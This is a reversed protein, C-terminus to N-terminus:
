VVVFRMGVVVEEEEFKGGRAKGIQRQLLTEQGKAGNDELVLPAYGVVSGRLSDPIAFAKLAETATMETPNWRSRSRSAGLGSKIPSPSASAGQPHLIPDIPIPSGVRPYYISASHLPTSMPTKRASKPPSKVPVSCPSNALASARTKKQPTTHPVLAQVPSGDQGHAANFDRVLDMRDDTVVAGTGVIGYMGTSRGEIGHAAPAPAPTHGRWLMRPDVALTGEETALAADALMTLASEFGFGNEVLPDLRAKKSPSPMMEMERRRTVERKIARLTDEDLEHRLLGIAKARNSPNMQKIDNLRQRLTRRQGTKGRTNEYSEVLKDLDLGDIELEPVANLLRQKKSPTEPAVSATMSRRQRMLPVEPSSQAIGFYPPALSVGRAPSPERVASGFLLEADAFPDDPAGASTKYNGDDMRVPKTSYATEPGYKRGNGATIVLDFIALGPQGRLRSPIHARSLARLLEASPPSDGWKNRGRANAEVELARCTMQWREEASVEGGESASANYMWAREGQRSVRTGHFRVRDNKLEVASGRTNLLTLGVLEGNLFVEMKLDKARKTSNAKPLFSKHCTQVTLCLAQPGDPADLFGRAREFSSFSSLATAATTPQAKKARRRSRTPTAPHPSERPEADSADPTADLSTLPSDSDANQQDRLPTRRPSPTKAAGEEETDREAAGRGADASVEVIFLPLDEHEGVFQLVGKASGGTGIPKEALNRGGAFVSEIREADQRQEIGMRLDLVNSCSAQLNAFSLTAEIGTANYKPM